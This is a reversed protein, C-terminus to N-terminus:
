EAIKYLWVSAGITAHNQPVCIETGAPLLLPLQNMVAATTSVDGPNMNFYYLEGNVAVVKSFGSAVMEKNCFKVKNETGAVSSTQTMFPNFLIQEISGYYGAPITYGKSATVLAVNDPLKETTQASAVFGTCVMSLLAVCVIKM